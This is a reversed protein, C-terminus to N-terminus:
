APKEMTLLEAEADAKSVVEPDAYSLEGFGSVTYGILQAFHVRDEPSFPMMALENMGIGKGQSFDLLFRVIANQKFRPRGHEDLVIPQMPHPPTTM